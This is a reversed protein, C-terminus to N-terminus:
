PRTRLAAVADLLQQADEPRKFTVALLKEGRDDSVRAEFYTRHEILSLKGIRDYRLVVTAGFGQVWVMKASKDGVEVVAPPFM